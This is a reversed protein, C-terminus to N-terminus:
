PKIIMLVILFRKDIIKLTLCGIYMESILHASPHDFANQNEFCILVKPPQLCVSSKQISQIEFAVM